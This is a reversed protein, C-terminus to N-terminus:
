QLVNFTIILFSYHNGTTNAGGRKKPLIQFKNGKSSHYYIIELKFPSFAMIKCYCAMRALMHFVKVGQYQVIGGEGGGFRMFIFGPQRLLPYEKFSLFHHSLSHVLLCKLQIGVAQKGFNYMDPLPCPNSPRPPISYPSPM